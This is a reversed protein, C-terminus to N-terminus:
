IQEYKWPRRIRLCCFCPNAFCYGYAINLSETLIQELLQRLQVSTMLIKLCSAPVSPCESDRAQHWNYYYFLSIFTPTKIYYFACFQSCNVQYNYDFYHLQLLMHLVLQLQRLITFFLKLFTLVAFAQIRCSYISYRIALHLTQLTNYFSCHLM